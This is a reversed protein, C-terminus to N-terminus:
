QEILKLFDSETEKWNYFRSSDLINNSFIMSNNCNSFFNFAEYLDDINPEFAPIGNSRYGIINSRVLIGDHGNKIVENIPPIDSSIIPIGLALCEYLHLGLGEWRSPAVIIDTNALLNMYNSFNLNNSNIKIRSDNFVPNITRNKKSKSFRNLEGLDQTLFFDSDKFSTQSKITLTIDNKTMKFAKVVSATPKRTSMFGGIYLFNKGKNIKTNRYKLIEPHCGWRIFPSEIGFKSYRTQECKTLSYIIDFANMAAPVDSSDFSEWVFRGITKVGGLKLKKIEDFQYNQDFFVVDLSNEDVWKFYEDENIKYNSAVSVNHKAWVNDSSSHNPLIFSDPAPRALIFTNFANNDFIGKIYRTVTAQGRNFWVSVFGINKKIKM